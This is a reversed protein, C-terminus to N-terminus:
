SYKMQKPIQCKFKIKYYNIIKYEEIIFYFNKNKLFKM